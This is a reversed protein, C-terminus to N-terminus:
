TAIVSLIMATIGVVVSKAIITFQSLPKAPVKPRSSRRMSWYCGAAFTVIPILLYVPGIPIERSFTLMITMLVVALAILSLVMALFGVLISKIYIWRIRPHWIM